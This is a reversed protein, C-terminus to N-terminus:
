GRTGICQSTDSGWYEENPGEVNMYLDYTGEVGEHEQGGTNWSGNGATTIWREWTVWWQGNWYLRQTVHVRAGGQAAVGWASMTVSTWGVPFGGVPFYYDTCSVHALAYTIRTSVTNSPASQGALNEAVVRFEYQDGGYLYPVYVSTGTLFAPGSTWGGGRSVNRLQVRYYVRPTPTPNWELTVANTWNTLRLQSPPQPIPPMPRASATNSPASDGSLNTARLRFDYTTGNLLLQVPFSCCSTVPYQLRQWAGGQSRMEIWYYVNATPSASWTLTVMGDGPTANLGTPPQPFPPMPRASATNSPASDGTLNTARVRFDYTTGNTLYAVDFTCCTSLPYKLRQWTGGAPRYEIWYYVSSTTSATWRLTVVGNGASATL